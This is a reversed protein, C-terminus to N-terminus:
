QSPLCRDLIKLVKEHERQRQSQNSFYIGAVFIANVVLLVLLAPSVRLSDVLSSAISTVAQTATQPRGNDSM